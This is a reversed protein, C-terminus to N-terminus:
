KGRREVAEVRRQLQRLADVYGQVPSIWPEIEALETPNSKSACLMCFRKKDEISGDGETVFHGYPMENGCLDCHWVCARETPKAPAECPVPLGHTPDKIAPKKASEYEAATIERNGSPYFRWEDEECCEGTPFIVEVCFGSVIKYHNIDSKGKYYKVAEVKEAPEVAHNRGDLEAQALAAIPGGYNLLYKLEADMIESVNM